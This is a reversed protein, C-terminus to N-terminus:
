YYGRYSKTTVNTFKLSFFELFRFSLFFDLFFDFTDLFTFFILVYRFFGLFGFSGFFYENFCLVFM